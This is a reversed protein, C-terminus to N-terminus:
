QKETVDAMSIPRTMNAQFVGQERLLKDYQPHTLIFFKDEELAQFVEDIVPELPRGTNLVYRNGQDYKQYLESHYFPQDGKAYRPPRHRDTLYMETQVFGPCFVALDIDEGKERLWKYTSEALAVAAHKTAFYVPSASLTILGAISCVNLIQCHSKQEMMQPLFRSLMYWHSYFNTETVWHIDQEVIETASGYASVGANNILFDTRGFAKMTEDFIRQCDGTLSVDAEVTVVKRGMERIERAVAEAEDGHIDNVVLNAGRAACGLALAKGIGNGAGTVVVIKDKYDAFM